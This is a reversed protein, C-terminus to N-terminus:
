ARAHHPPAAAFRQACEPSCFWWDRNNHRLRSPAASPDVRM